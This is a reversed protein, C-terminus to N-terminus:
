QLVEIDKNGPVFLPNRVHNRDVIEQDRDADDYLKNALYLAPVDDGNRIIRLNPLAISRKNVEAIMASQLDILGRFIEDKGTDGASLIEQDFLEVAADRQKVADQKSPFEYNSVAVAIQSLAIARVTAIMVDQNKATQVRTPTTQTVVKFSGGYTLVRAHARIVDKQSPFIKTLSTLVEEVNGGVSSGSPIFSGITGKFTSLVTKFSSYFPEVLGTALGVANDVIDTFSNLLGTAQNAVDDIFDVVNYVKELYGTAASLLGDAKLGVLSKLNFGSTPFKKEGAESFTLTFTEIGGEKNSFGVTCDKPVVTKSGLSPHILTGPSKDGEIAKILADRDKFYNDGLIYANFSYERARRGLDESFPDDRMPYEHVQNRRGFRMEASDVKFKVGRFSAPQLQEKWGM